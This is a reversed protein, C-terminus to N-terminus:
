KCSDANSNPKNDAAKLQLSRARVRARFLKFKLRANEQNSRRLLEGSDLDKCLLEFVKFSIYKISYTPWWFTRARRLKGMNKHNCNRLKEIIEKYIENLEQIKDDNKRSRRRM